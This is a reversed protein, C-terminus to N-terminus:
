ARLYKDQLEQRAVAFADELLEVSRRLQDLDAQPEPSELDSCLQAMRLAGIQRCLGLLKHAQRKTLDKDGRKVVFRLEALWEPM